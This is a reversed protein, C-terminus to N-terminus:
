SILPMYTSRDVVRVNPVFWWPVITHFEYLVRVKVYCIGGSNSTCSTVGDALTGTYSGGSATPLVACPSPAVPVPNSQDACMVVTLDHLGPTGSLEGQIVSLVNAQSIAPDQSIVDAGARSSNVVAQQVAAIRMLDVGGLLAMVLIPASLALEVISQGRENRLFRWM